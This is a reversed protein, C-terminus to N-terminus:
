CGPVSERKVAESLHSEQFECGDWDEDQNRSMGSELSGNQGNEGEMKESSDKSVLGLKKWM